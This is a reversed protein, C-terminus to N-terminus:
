LILTDFNEAKARRAAQVRCLRRFRKQMPFVYKHFLRQGKVRRIAVMDNGRRFFATFNARHYRLKPKGRSNFGDLLGDMHATKPSEDATLNGHRVM